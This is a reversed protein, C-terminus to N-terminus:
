LDVLEAPKKRKPRQHHLFISSKQKNILEKSSINWNEM